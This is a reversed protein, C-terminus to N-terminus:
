CVQCRRDGRGIWVVCFSFNNSLSGGRGMSEMSWFLVDKFKNFYKPLTQIRKTNTFARHEIFVRFSLTAFSRMECIKSLRWVLSICYSCAGLPNQGALYRNETHSIFSTRCGVKVNIFIT